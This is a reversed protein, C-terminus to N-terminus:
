GGLTEAIKNRAMRQPTQRASLIRERCATKCFTAKRREFSPLRCALLGGKLTYFVAKQMANQLTNLTLVKDTVNFKCDL